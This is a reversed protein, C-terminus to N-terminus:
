KKTAKSVGFIVGVITIIAQAIATVIEAIIQGDM